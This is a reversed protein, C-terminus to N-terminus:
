LPFTAILVGGFTSSALESICSLPVSIYNRTKGVRIYNASTPVQRLPRFFAHTRAVLHDSANSWCHIFRWSEFEHWVHARTLPFWVRRPISTRREAAMAVAESMSLTSLATPSNIIKFKHTAHIVQLMSNKIGVVACCLEGYPQLMELVDQPFEYRQASIRNDSFGLMQLGDNESFAFPIFPAGKLLVVSCRFSPFKRVRLCAGAEHFMVYSPTMGRMSDTHAKTRAGRIASVRLTDMISRNGDEDLQLMQQDVMRSLSQRVATLYSLNRDSVNCRIHGPHTVMKQDAEYIWGMSAQGFRKRKKRSAEMCFNLISYKGGYDENTKGISNAKMLRLESNPFLEYIAKADRAAEIKSAYSENRYYMARRKPNRSLIPGLSSATFSNYKYDNSQLWSARAYAPIVGILDDDGEFIIGGLKIKVTIPNVVLKVKSQWTPRVRPDSDGNFHLSHPQRIIALLENHFGEGDAGLNCGFTVKVKVEYSFPILSPGPSPLARHAPPAYQVLSEVSEKLDGTVRVKKEILKPGGLPPIHAILKSEGPM